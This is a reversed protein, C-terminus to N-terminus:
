ERTEWFEIGRHLYEKYLIDISFPTLTCPGRTGVELPCIAILGWMSLEEIFEQLVTRSLKAM